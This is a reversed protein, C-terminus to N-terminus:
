KTATYDLPKTSESRSWHPTYVEKKIKIEYFAKLWIYLRAPYLLLTWYFEKLNKPFSLSLYIGYFIENSFSKMKVDKKTVYKNLAEHAKISRVKQKVWDKFNRPFLVLVRAEKVYVNKYGKEYVMYSIIADEAVDLPIENIIGKRVALLNACQEVLGGKESRMQRVKDSANTLLHSWYGLMTKRDNIATPRGGAAGVKPDKFPKLILEISNEELFKNGDTWVLIDGKAIKIIKNMLRNKGSGYEQKVYKIIEPYKKQYDMIVKKTPEDPCAAILEFKEHFNKQNLLIKMSEKTSKPDEYATVILSIM